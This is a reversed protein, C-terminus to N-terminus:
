QEVPHHMLRRITVPDNSDGSGHNIYLHGDPGVTIANPRGFSSDRGRGDADGATADGAIVVAGGTALDYEYVVYGARSTVYLRDDLWAVHSTAQPFTHLHSVAGAEDIEFLDGDRHNVAYLTGDPSRTLGNVGNFQAHTAFVSVEGDPDIRHIRNGDYAEVFVTGDELVVLGTPGSIGDALQEPAGDDAIRFVRDSGYSAQYLRGDPGFTTMTLSAFEPSQVFPTVTGDTDIRHITDGAHGTFGFDALYMVGDPAIALGGTASDIDRVVTEVVWDDSLGYGDDVLRQLDDSVAGTPAPVAVESTQGAGSPTDGGTSCAVGFVALATVPLLSWRTFSM